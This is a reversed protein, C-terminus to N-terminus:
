APHSVSRFSKIFWAEDKKLEHFNQCKFYLRVTQFLKVVRGVACLWSDPLKLKIGSLPKSKTEAAVQVHAGNIKIIRHKQVQLYVLSFVSLHLAHLAQWVCDVVIEFFEIYNTQCQM